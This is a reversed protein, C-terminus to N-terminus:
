EAVILALHAPVRLRGARHDELIRAHGNGISQAVLADAELDRHGPEIAAPEVDRGAREAARL